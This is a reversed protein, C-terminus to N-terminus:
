ISPANQRLSRLHVHAAETVEPARGYQMWCWISVCLSRMHSLVALLEDDLERYASRACQLSTLDWEYPGLCAAEFDILLPGEDTLLINGDLHPDGHLPHSTLDFSKLRSEIRLAVDILFTREGEPLEPTRSSDVLAHHARTLNDSFHPLPGQYADFAGHFASLAHALADDSVDIDPFHKKYTWLTLVTGERTYPGPRVDSTPPAIPAGRAAIFQGVRLENDLVSAGDHRISTTGVKAVVPAPALHVITNNSDKIVRAAHCRIELEAALSTAVRLAHAQRSGSDEM